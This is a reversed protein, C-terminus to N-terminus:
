TKWLPNNTTQVINTKFRLVFLTILIQFLTCLLFNNFLRQVVKARINFLLQRKKSDLIDEYRYLLYKNLFIVNTM